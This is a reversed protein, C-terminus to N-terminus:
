VGLQGPFWGPFEVQKESRTPEYIPKGLPRISLTGNRYDKLRQRAIEIYQDEIECMIAKRGLSVAAIMSSGVGGFPDLVYDDDRTLAM